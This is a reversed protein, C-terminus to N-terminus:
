VLWGWGLGTQWGWACPDGPLVVYSWVRGLAQGCVWRAFLQKCCTYIPYSTSTFNATSLFTVCDSVEKPMYMLGAPCPRTTQDRLSWVSLDWVRVLSACGAGHM